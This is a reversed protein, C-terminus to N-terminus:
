GRMNIDTNCIRNIYNVKRCTLLKAAYWSSTPPLLNTVLDLYPPLVSSAEFEVYLKTIKSFTYKM